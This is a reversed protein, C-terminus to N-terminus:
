HHNAHRSASPAQVVLDQYVDVTQRAAKAWSFKASRALGRASLEARLYPSSSLERMAQALGQVDEPSILRAAEGVVEPLSAANSCIVPTGCAMAELPPLGFGEYRSPFVLARALKYIAPLLEVPVYELFRVRRELGEQAVQETFKDWYWGRKGVILLDEGVEGAIRAYASVLTDVGKRPELTSVFLFFAAPLQYRSRAEELVAPALAPTFREDRGPYVVRIREPSIRTLRVIDQKTNESDAVLRAALRLSSPLYRSWYFRALPPFNSAFLAGILDHVTLVLPLPPRFSAAFGTLHLIDAHSRRALRPLTIQERWIRAPVRQNAGAGDDLEVLEIQSAHERLASLLNETYVGIGTKTGRLSSVDVAVRM